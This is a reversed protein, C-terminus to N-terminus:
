RTDGGLGWVRFVCMYVRVGGLVRVCVCTQPTPPSPPPIENGRLWTSYQLHPHTPPHTPPHMCVSMARTGMGALWTTQRTLTLSHTQTCTYVRVHIIHPPSYMGAASAPMYGGGWINVCSCTDEEEYLLVSAHIRRRRMYYCLHM